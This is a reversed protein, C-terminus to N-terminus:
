KRFKLNNLGNFTSKVDQIWRDICREQIKAINGGTYKKRTSNRPYLLIATMEFNCLM